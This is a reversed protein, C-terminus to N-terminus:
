KGLFLEEFNLGSCDVNYVKKLFEKDLPSYKGAEFELHHLSCLPIQKRNVASLIASLGYLRKNNSTLVSVKGSSDIRRSLKRVHHIEIDTNCCNKVACRSFLFRNSHLRLSYKNFLSEADPEQYKNELLFKQNM